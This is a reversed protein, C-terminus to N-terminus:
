TGAAIDFAVTMRRGQAFPTTGHYLTSPFLALYGERPHLSTVPGLDLRLDAPPRGLELWGEGRALGARDPLLLYLASSLIGQPHIHSAHFDAGGTLRVSWSGAMPWPAERHRLLPHAGDRPPLGARYDEVTALIATKLAAFEPEHRDFLRHRTQTGGRLSQGLPFAARDHLVKLRAIAAPLVTEADRLPLLAVLGEQGHLWEARPDGTMRWAISLLAYAAHAAQPEATVSTLLATAQAGDGLRLAHRAREITPRAGAAPLAAFLRSAEDLEGAASAMAAALVPFEPRDPFARGARAAVDHAAAFREVNELLALHALPIAPDDPAKGAVAIFHSDFDPDGKALRLEALLRLGDIWGPAQGVIAQAISLAAPLDGAESLAYARGLWLERDGPTVSIAARYRAEADDEGRELAVRARGKLALARNNELALARDYCAAARALDGASRACSGAVSWYRADRKGQAVQDLAALAAGAAGTRELAIAHNIAYEAEQPALARAAAFAAAARDALGCRLALSGASNHLPAVAPFERLGADLLALAAAPGGQREAALARDRWVRAGESM